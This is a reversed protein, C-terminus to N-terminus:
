GYPNIKEKQVCNWPHSLPNPCPVTRQGLSKIPVFFRGRDWLGQGMSGDGTGDLSGDGTGHMHDKWIRDALDSIYELSFTSDQENIKNQNALEQTYEELPYVKIGGYGDSLHTVLPLVSYDSISVRGSEAEKEITIEAMGGLMRNAVGAGTGSTSNVFNGLSYYVLMQQDDKEYMEIPEIVHPHTGIVLDVGNELFFEAWKKQEKSPELQYEIGWHPCVIVFDAEEKAKVIQMKMKEREMLDVAYPMGEPLPIGNTGYTYNLIAISIDNVERIVIENQGEQSDHIGLVAIDPYKDRWNSLCREIGKRGKDLAHNTGHCIVDFGTDVLADAVEFPGNFAPYGSIGLEKGGLIVEQNVIALDASAIQEKVESFIPLFCYEGEANVASEEVPTHLLIDGVMVITAQSINEQEPLNGESELDGELEGSQNQNLDDEAITGASGIQSGTGEQNYNNSEVNSTNESHHGQEEEDFFHNQNEQESSIQTSEVSIPNQVQDKECGPLGLLVLMLFIIGLNTNRNYKRKM